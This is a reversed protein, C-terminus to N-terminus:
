WWGTPSRDRRPAASAMAPPRADSVSSWLAHAHEAARHADLYSPGGVLRLEEGAPQARADAALHAQLVPACGDDVAHPDVAALLIQQHLARAVAVEAAGDHPSRESCMTMRGRWSQDHEQAGLEVPEAGLRHELLRKGGCAFVAGRVAM